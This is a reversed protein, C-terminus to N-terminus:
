SLDIIQPDQEGEARFIPPVYDLADIEPFSCVCTQLERTKEELFQKLCEQQSTSLQQLGNAPSDVDSSSSCARCSEDATEMDRARELAKCLLICAKEANEEFYKRSTPYWKMCRKEMDLYNLLYNTRLASGIDLARHIEDRAFREMLHQLIVSMKFIKCLETGSCEERGKQAAENTEKEKLSEAMADRLERAEQDADDGKTMDLIVMDVLAELNDEKLEVLEVARRVKVEDLQTDACVRKIVEEKLLLVLHGSDEEPLSSGEGDLQLSRQEMALSVSAPHEPINVKTCSRGAVDAEPKRKRRGKKRLPM